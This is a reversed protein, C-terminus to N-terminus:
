EAAHANEEIRATAPEGILVPGSEEVAVAAAAQEATATTLPAPEFDAAQQAVQRVLDRLKASNKEPATRLELAGLHLDRSQGLLAVSVLTSDIAAVFIGVQLGSM